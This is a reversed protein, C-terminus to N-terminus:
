VFCHFTRPGCSTGALDRSRGQKLYSPITQFQAESNGAEAARLFWTKAQEENREVLEGDTYFTGLLIQANVEGLNASKTCYELAKKKLKREAAYFHHCAVLSM